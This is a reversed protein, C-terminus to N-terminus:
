RCVERDDWTVGGCLHHAASGGGGAAEVCGWVLGATSRCIGWGALGVKNGARPLARPAVPSSLALAMLSTGFSDARRLSVAPHVEVTAPALAHPSPLDATPLLVRSIQTDRWRSPDVISSRVDEVARPNSMAQRQRTRGLTTNKNQCASPRDLIDQDNGAPPDHLPAFFPPPRQRGAYGAPGGETLDDKPGDTDSACHQSQDATSSVSKKMNM